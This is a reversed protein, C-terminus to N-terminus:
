KCSLRGRAPTHFDLVQLAETLQEAGGQHPISNQLMASPDLQQEGFWVVGAGRKWGAPALISADLFLKPPLLPPLTLTQISFGSKGVDQLLLPM